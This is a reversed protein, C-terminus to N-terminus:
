SWRVSKVGVSEIIDTSERLSIQLTLLGSIQKPDDTHGANEDGISRILEMTEAKVRGWGFTKFQHLNVMDADHYLGDYWADLKPGAENPQKAEYAELRAWTGAPVDALREMQEPSVDKPYLRVGM